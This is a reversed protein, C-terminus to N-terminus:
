PLNGGYIDGSKKLAMLRQKVRRSAIIGIFSRGKAAAGVAAVEQHGGQSTTVTKNCLPERGSELLAKAPVLLRLHPNKAIERRRPKRPEGHSDTTRKQGDHRQQRDDHLEFEEFSDIDRMAM